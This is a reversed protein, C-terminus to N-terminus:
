NKVLFIITKEKYKKLYFDIMTKNKSDIRIILTEIEYKIPIRNSIAAEYIESTITFQSEMLQTKLEIKDTDSITFVGNKFKNQISNSNNEIFNSNRKLNLIKACNPLTPISLNKNVLMKLNVSGCFPLLFDLKEQSQVNILPNYPM